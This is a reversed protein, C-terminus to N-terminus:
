EEKKNKLSQRMNRWKDAEVRLRQKEAEKESHKKQATEQMEKLEDQAEQVAKKVVLRSDNKQMEERLAQASQGAKTIKQKLEDEAIETKERDKDCFANFKEFISM